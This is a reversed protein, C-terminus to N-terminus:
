FQLVCELAATLQRPSRAPGAAPGFVPEGAFDGRVEPRVALWPRPRWTAAATLATYGTAFGTRTGHVDDFWEMRLAGDLNGALKYVGAALVGYWQGTGVGPVGQDWGMNVQLYHTLRESWAHQLRFEAVTALSGPNAPRTKGAAEDGVLLTANLLTKRGEGPWWNVQALHCPADGALTFFTNSGLTVGYTLDLRETVHWTAWAGTDAGDEGFNWQYSLSYFSRRPAMYSEFGMLSGQRGLRVDIGGETLAPLHAEAYVQRVVGGFRPNSTTIDGPGQLAAADAGALFQLYFGASLGDARAPKELVLAIQDALFERGFRNLLPEVALQGAGSSAYTYGSEAWGHLRLAPEEPGSQASAPMPVLAAAALTALALRVLTPSRIL